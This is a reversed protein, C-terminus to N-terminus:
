VRVSDLDSIDGEHVVLDADPLDADIRAAASRLRDARRGVMHVTAGLAALGKATAEGRGSGAGTVVVDQQDPFPQADSAWWHRRLAPGISSFGPVVLVDLVKDLATTSAKSISHSTM